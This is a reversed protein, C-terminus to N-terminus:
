TYVFRVKPFRHQNLTLAGVVQVNRVCDIASPHKPKSLNSQLM